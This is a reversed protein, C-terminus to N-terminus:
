TQLEMGVSDPALPRLAVWLTLMLLVALSALSVAGGLRFSEPDYTYVLHSTGARVAAGRMLRNARLIPAPKGNVTLKWGPYFVDALIVLGAQKLNATLEVRQPEYKTITVTEAIDTATRPLYEALETIDDIEIWATSKLDFVVRDPDRWFSDNQFLM